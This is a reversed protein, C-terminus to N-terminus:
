MWLNEKGEVGGICIQKETDIEPNAKEECIDNAVPLTVQQLIKAKKQRRKIKNTGWGTIHLNIGSSMVDKSNNSDNGILCCSEANWPICVPIVGSENKNANYYLPVPKDLRILAIDNKFTNRDYNEHVIKKNAKRAIRRPFCNTTCGKPDPDQRVDHDGLIM